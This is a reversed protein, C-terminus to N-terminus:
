FAEAVTFTYDVSGNANTIRFGHERGFSPPGFSGAGSFGPITQVSGGSGTPAQVNYSQGGEVSAFGGDGVNQTGFTTVVRASNADFTPPETVSQGEQTRTFTQNVAGTGSNDFFDTIVYQINVTFTVQRPSTTPNAAIGGSVTASTAVADGVNSLFGLVNDFSSFGGAPVNVIWDFIASGEVGPSVFSENPINNLEETDTRTETYSVTQTYEETDGVQGLPLGISPQPACTPTGSGDVTLQCLATNVQTAGTFTTVCQRDRRVTAFEQSILGTNVSTPTTGSFATISGGGLVYWGYPESTPFAPCVEESATGGTPPNSQINIWTAQAATESTTVARVGGVATGQANIAYALYSYTTSPNLGSASETFTGSTAGDPINQGFSALFSQSQSGEAFRFGSATIPSGGDSDIRGAM